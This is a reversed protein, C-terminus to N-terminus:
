FGSGPVPCNPDAPELPLGILWRLLKVSDIANIAGSCDIDGWVRSVGYVTVNEGLVPCNGAAPGSTEIGADKMLLTVADQPVVSKDCNLDEWTLGLPTPPPSATPVPSATPTPTATASNTPSATRTATATATPSPANTNPTTNYYSFDTVWYCGYRSGSVCARGVGIVVYNGLMNANHGPSGKWADFVAQATTFGGASNEGVGAPYGFAMARAGPM